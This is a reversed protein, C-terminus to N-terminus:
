DAALGRVGRESVLLAFVGVAYVGLAILTVTTFSSSM